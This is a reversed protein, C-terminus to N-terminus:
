QGEAFAPSRGRLEVMRGDRLHVQRPAQEAIAPNHTVLILTSNAEHQVERLLAMIEKETVSDLNGTPEDCLLLSPAGVLARAIAVRQCEGGSLQTPKHKKRHGMGVRDLWYEAKARHESPPLERYRLPLAVNAVVDLNPLLNFSQFVFGITRGRVRSLRQDDLNSIDEGDLRYSGSTPTDLCGLVNLLTSKGSGSPGTLALVEGREVVLDIDSLVEVLHEGLRYTKSVGRLELHPDTM